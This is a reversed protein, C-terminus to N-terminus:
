LRYYLDHRFRGAAVEEELNRNTAVVLRVDIKRLRNEGIRRVEREQLVRPLKVQMAWPMEGIEDLFLTGGDASEFLGIRELQAGTFAGRSHGFLESELLTESFAGCNIAVFPKAHRRSQEHVFQALREKGVGTEGTIVVTSDLRAVRAAVDFVQRMVTSSVGLREAYSIARSSPPEPERVPDQPLPADRLQSLLSGCLSVFAGEVHAPQTMVLRCASDGMALCADEHFEVHRDLVQSLYGSAFGALLWCVPTECRGHRRLHDVAEFSDRWCYDAGFAWASAPGGFGVLSQLRPLAAISADVSPWPVFTTAADACEWGWACGLETILRRGDSGSSSLRERLLWLAGHTMLLTRRDTFRHTGGHLAPALLERLDLQDLRM